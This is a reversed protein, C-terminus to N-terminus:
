YRFSFRFHTGFNLSGPCINLTCKSISLFFNFFLYRRVSLVTLGDLFNGMCRAPLCFTAIRSMCAWCSVYLLWQHRFRIRSLRLSLYWSAYLLSDDLFLKIIFLLLLPIFFAPIETEDRPSNIKSCSQCFYFRVSICLAHSLFLLSLSFISYHPNKRREIRCLLFSLILSLFLSKGSFFFLHLFFFLCSKEAERADDSPTWEWVATECCCCCCCCGCFFFLLLFLFPPSPLPLFAFETLRERARSFEPCFSVIWLNFTGVVGRNENTKEAM